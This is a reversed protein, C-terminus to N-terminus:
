SRQETKRQCPHGNSNAMRPYPALRRGPSSLLNMLPNHHDPTEVDETVVEEMGIRVEEMGIIATRGPSLPM